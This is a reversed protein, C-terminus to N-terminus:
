KIANTNYYVYVKLMKWLKEVSSISGSSSQLKAFNKILYYIEHSTFSFLRVSYKVHFSLYFVYYVKRNLIIFFEIVLYEIFFESNEIDLQLYNLLTEKLM